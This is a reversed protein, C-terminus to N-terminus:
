CHVSNGRRGGFQTKVTSLILGAGISPHNGAAGDRSRPSLCCVVAQDKWFTRSGSGPVENCEYRIQMM